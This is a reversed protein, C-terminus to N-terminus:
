VVKILKLAQFNKQNQLKVMWKLQLELLMHGLKGLNLPFFIQEKLHLKDSIMSAWYVHVSM